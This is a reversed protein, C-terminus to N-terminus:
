TKGTTHDYRYGEDQGDAPRLYSRGHSEDNTANERCRHAGVAYGANRGPRQHDRDADDDDGGTRDPEDSRIDEGVHRMPTSAAQMAAGFGTQDARVAGATRAGRRPLDSSCVDSSWDSIRWDYATKRKCSFIYFM